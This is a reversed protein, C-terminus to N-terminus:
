IKFRVRGRPSAHVTGVDLESQVVQYRQATPSALRNRGPTTIPESVHRAAWLHSQTWACLFLAIPLIIIIIITVTIVTDDHESRGVEHTTDDTEGGESARSSGGDMWFYNYGNTPPPVPPTPPPLSPSPPADAFCHFTDLNQVSANACTTNPNSLRLRWVSSAHYYTTLPTDYDPLEPCKTGTTRGVGYFSCNRVTVFAGVGADQVQLEYLLTCATRLFASQFHIRSGTGTLPYVFEDDPASFVKNGTLSDAFFAM